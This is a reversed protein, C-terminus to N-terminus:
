EVSGPTMNVVLEGATDPDCCADCPFGESHVWYQGHAATQHTEYWLRFTQLLRLPSVGVDTAM